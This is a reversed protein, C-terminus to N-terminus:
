TGGYHRAVFGATPHMNPKFGPGGQDTGWKGTGFHEAGRGPLTFVIFVHTANAYVTMYKGRGPQGWSSAFMGSVYPTAPGMGGAHTVASTSGSCDFGGGSPVGVKGHGGGWVYPYHKRDIQLAAEYARAVSAPVGKVLQGSSLRVSTSPDSLGPSNQAPAATSPAPERKASVRKRLTVDAEPSLLSQKVDAVLWKGNAVGIGRLQVASGPPLAWRDALVSLQAENVVKGRDFSFDIGLVAPDDETLTAVPPQLYLWNDSVYWLADEVMFARWGV